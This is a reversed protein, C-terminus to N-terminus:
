KKKAGLGELTKELTEGDPGTAHTLVAEADQKAIRRTQTGISATGNNVPNKGTWFEISNFILGDGLEALGYVPAWIFVLFVAEKIWRDQSFSQNWNYLRRTLQFSGLCGGSVLALALAGAVMRTQHKM